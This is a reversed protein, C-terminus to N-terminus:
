LDATRVPRSITVVPNFALCQNVESLRPNEEFLRRMFSKFEMPSTWEQLWLVQPQETGQPITQTVRLCAPYAAKRPVAIERTLELYRKRASEDKMTCLMTVVCHGFDAEEAQAAFVTAAQTETECSPDSTQTSTNV